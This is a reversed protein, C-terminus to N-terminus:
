KGPDPGHFLTAHLVRPGIGNNRTFRRSAPTVFWRRQFTEGKHSALDMSTRTVVHLVVMSELDGFCYIVIDTHFRPNSLQVDDNRVAQEADAWIIRTVDQALNDQAQRLATTARRNTEILQFQLADVEEQVQNFVSVQLTHVLAGGLGVDLRVTTTGSELWM